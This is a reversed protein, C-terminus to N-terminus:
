PPGGASGAEPALRNVLRAVDRNWGELEAVTPALEYTHHHVARSLGHWASRGIAAIEPDAFVPLALLQHRMPRGVLSPAKRQWYDRLAQELAVRTLSACARPWCRRLSPGPQTLLGSAADLLARPSM